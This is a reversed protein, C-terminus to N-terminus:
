RKQKMQRSNVLYVQTGYKLKVKNKKIAKSIANSVKSYANQVATNAWQAISAGSSMGDMTINNQTAASAVDKATERFSSGPVYLGELGDTDYISLDIKLIEDGVMVSEVKGKARQSGFGSMSAYLYTGKPLPTGNIEVDDLLRLRVRSGDVAKIDEDIIAKILNSERENESLTNFYKSDDRAKKVVINSKADEALEHVANPKDGVSTAEEERKPANALRAQVSDGSFRRAIMDAQAGLRMQGGSQIKALDRKFEEMTKKNRIANLEARQEETLYDEFETKENMKKGKEAAENVQKKLDEYRKQAEKVKQEEELRAREEDSYKSEYEEKGSIDGFADINEIASIDKMNNGFRNEVNAKKSGMSEKVNASPLESNLYTTSKMKSVKVEEVPAFMDVGIYLLAMVPLYTLAPIVYKPQKLNLKKNM